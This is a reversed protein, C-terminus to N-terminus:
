RRNSWLVQSMVTNKDFDLVVTGCHGFYSSTIHEGHTTLLNVRQHLFVQGFEFRDLALSVLKVYTDQIIRGDEFWIDADTKGKLRLTVKAPLVIDVDVCVDARDNQWNSPAAIVTDLYEIDCTMGARNPLRGFELCLSMKAPAFDHM